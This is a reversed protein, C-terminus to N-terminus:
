AGHTDVSLGAERWRAMGGTLHYVGSFGAKELAKQAIRARVGRECYVVVNKEAFSKLEDLHTSVEKYSINIAGPIHGSNYEDVSRVDLICIDSKQQMWEKLQSQLIDPAGSRSRYLIIAVGPVVVVSLVIIVIWGM